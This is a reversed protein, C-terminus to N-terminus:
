AVMFHEMSEESGFYDLIDLFLANSRLTAGPGLM